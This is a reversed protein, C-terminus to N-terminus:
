VREIVRLVHVFNFTLLLLVFDARCRRCRTRADHERWHVVQLYRWAFSVVVISHYHLFQNFFNSATLLKILLLLLGKLNNDDVLKILQWMGCLSWKSSGHFSVHRRASDYSITLTERLYNLRELRSAELDSHRGRFFVHKSIKQSFNWRFFAKLKRWLKSLRNRM